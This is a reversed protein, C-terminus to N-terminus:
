LDCFQMEINGLKVKLAVKLKIKTRLEEIYGLITMYLPVYKVRLLFPEYTIARIQINNVIGTRRNISRFHLTKIM